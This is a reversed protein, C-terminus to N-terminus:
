SNKKGRKKQGIPCNNWTLVAGLKTGPGKEEERISGGGRKDHPKGLM